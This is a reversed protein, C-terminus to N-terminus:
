AMNGYLLRERETRVRLEEGLSERGIGTERV